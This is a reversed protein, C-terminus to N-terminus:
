GPWEIVTGSRMRERERVTAPTPIKRLEERM